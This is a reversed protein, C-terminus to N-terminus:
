LRKVTRLPHKVGLICREKGKRGGERERERERQKRREIRTREERRKRKERERGAFKQHPSRRWAAGSGVPRDQHMSFTDLFHAIINSAKRNSKKTLYWSKWIGSNIKTNRTIVWFEQMLFEVWFRVGCGKTAYNTSCGLFRVAM